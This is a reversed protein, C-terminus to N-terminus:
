ITPANVTRTGNSFGVPLFSPAPHLLATNATHSSLNGMSNHLSGMHNHLRDTPNLPNVMPPNNLILNIFAQIPLLRQCSADASQFSEPYILLRLPLQFMIGRDSPNEDKSEKDKDKDKEKPKDSEKDAKKKDDDDALFEKVENKLKKFFSDM